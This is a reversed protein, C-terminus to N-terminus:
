INSYFDIKDGDKLTVFAKKFNNARGSLLGARTYRSKAKGMYNATNVETVVVGYMDEVAQRIQIKNARRDVIFAFRNLKEGQATMKETLVPRIIIQM